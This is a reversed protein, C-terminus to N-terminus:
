TFRFTSMDKPMIFTIDVKLIDEYKNADSFHVSMIHDFHNLNRWRPLAEM